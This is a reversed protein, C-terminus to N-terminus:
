DDAFCAALASALSMAIANLRVRGAAVESAHVAQVACVVLLALIFFKATSRGSAMVTVALHAFSLYVCSHTTKGAM